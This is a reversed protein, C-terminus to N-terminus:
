DLELFKPYTTLNRCGEKEVLVMDEIRVAGIKPYYLGPEVTVVEGEQLLHDVRSIRPPEHIDLGIGHGTGHFFGQMRGDILGTQYGREEFYNMISQHIDKGNAGSKVQQIGLLQGELVTDYLRKITDPAKGKVVTRTMDAHYRTENSRPFIDFIISQNARLPGSGENHPDCADVGCSVITHQAICGKKMLALDLHRRVSESTLAEGGLLLLGDKIESQRLLDLTSDLAAEVAIQAQRIADVEQPTKLSRQEFFPENKTILTHGLKRLQDAHRLPFNAPVVWESVAHEAMLVHLVDTLSPAALGSIKTKAEYESYPLVQDVTSQARARDVELDSMLLLSKGHVQLYIFPDPALFRSAYYINADTESGAIILVNAHQDTKPHEEQEAM